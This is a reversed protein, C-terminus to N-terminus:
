LQESGGHVTAATGFRYLNSNSALREHDCRDPLGYRFTLHPECCHLYLVRFRVALLTINCSFEQTKQEMERTGAFANGAMIALFGLLAILVTLQRILKTKM